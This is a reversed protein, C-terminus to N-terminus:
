LKGPGTMRLRRKMLAPGLGNERNLQAPSKPGASIAHADQDRDRQKEAARRADFERQAEQRPM